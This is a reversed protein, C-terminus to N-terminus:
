IMIKNSNYIYLVQAIINIINLYIIIYFRKYIYRNTFGIIIGFIIYIYIIKAPDQYKTSNEVSKSKKIQVDGPILIEKKGRRNRRKRTGAPFNGGM